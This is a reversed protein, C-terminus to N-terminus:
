ALRKKTTTFKLDPNKDMTYNADWADKGLYVPDGDLDTGSQSKNKDMFADLKDQDGSIWRAVNYPATEFEVELGYESEVGRMMELMEARRNLQTVFHNALLAIIVGVVVITVEFFFTKWGAAIGAM